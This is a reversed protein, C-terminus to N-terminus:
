EGKQAAKIGLEYFHKALKKVTKESNSKMFFDANNLLYNDIEKELDVEISEQQLSDIVNLVSLYTYIEADLIGGGNKTNKDSLERWTKDTIEKLKEADIYKM